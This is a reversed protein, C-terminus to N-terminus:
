RNEMAWRLRPQLINDAMDRLQPSLVGRLIAMAKPEPHDECGEVLEAAIGLRDAGDFVAQAQHTTFVWRNGDLVEWLLDELRDDLLGTSALRLDENDWDELLGLVADECDEVAREYLPVAAARVSDIASKYAEFLDETETYSMDTQM